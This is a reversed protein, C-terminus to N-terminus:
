RPTGFQLSSLFISWFLSLMTLVMTLPVSANQLDTEKGAPVIWTIFLILMPLACVVNYFIVWRFSVMERAYIGWFYERKDGAEELATKKKPLLNLIDYSQCGYVMCKHYWHRLPQSSDCAYFRTEFEHQSVPPIFNMPRPEYEYDTNAVEPFANKQKPTFQHDDFKECMYFDCHSFRWISFWNPIFGRLRFYDKKLTSFFRQCSLGSINIQSIKYETDRKVMFLIRHDQANTNSAVNQPQSTSQIANASSSNAVQHPKQNSPPYKIHNQNNTNSSSSSNGHFSASSPQTSQVLSRIISQLRKAFPSPVEAWRSDGCTCEWQLQREGIKLPTM